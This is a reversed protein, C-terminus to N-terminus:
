ADNAQMLTRLNREAESITQTHGAIETEIESLARDVDDPNIGLAQLRAEAESIQRALANEEGALTAELTEANRLTQRAEDLTVV